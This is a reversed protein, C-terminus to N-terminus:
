LLEGIDVDDDENAFLSSWDLEAFEVFADIFSGCRVDYDQISLYSYQLGDQFDVNITDGSFAQIADQISDGSGPERPFREPYLQVLLEAMNKPMHNIAARRYHDIYELFTM